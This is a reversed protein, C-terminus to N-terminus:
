ARAIVLQMQATVIGDAHRAKMRLGSSGPEDGLILGAYDPHATRRRYPEAARHVADILSPEFYLQTTFVHDGGRYRGRGRPKSGHELVMLHVHIDRGNYWGPFISRFSVVGAADSVAAGRCFRAANDLDNHNPRFRYVQDPQQEGPEGFGSYYGQADCHWVYVELGALPAASCGAAGARLLRLHLQLETGAEAAPDYQGRIDQRFLSVDDEREGDHVFFPGQGARDTPSPTCSPVDDWSPVVLPAEGAVRPAASFARPALMGGLAAVGGAVVGRRTADLSGRSDDGADVSM